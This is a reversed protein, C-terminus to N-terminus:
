SEGVIHRHTPDQMWGALEDGHNIVAMANNGFLMMIVEHSTPKAMSEDMPMQLFQILRYDLKLAQGSPATLEEKNEGNADAGYVGVCAQAMLDMNLETIPLEKGDPMMDRLQSRRAFFKDMPGPDLPKYRILLQKGFEGGVPIDINHEELQEKARARLQGIISDDAETGIGMELTPEDVTTM